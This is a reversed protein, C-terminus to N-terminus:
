AATQAPLAESEEPPRYGLAPPLRKRNYVEELCHPLRDIADQVTACEHLYVEAHKLTKIFSEVQANHYPNGTRSLSGRVGAAALRERDRRSAYQVGRDSHHILGPPPRRSELAADLAAQPLFADLVHGIADGVVQRSWADLIVGLDAFERELRLYTLDAVWLQNPGDPRMDPLVNPFVPEDHASDTTLVFRRRPRAALGSERMVRAVRKQNVRTVRRRLEHTVRRYGHGPFEGTIAELTTRRTADAAAL